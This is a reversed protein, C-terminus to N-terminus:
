CGEVKSKNCNVSTMRAADDSYNCVILQIKCTVEKIENKKLKKSNTKIHVM